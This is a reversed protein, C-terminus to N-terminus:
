EPTEPTEVPVTSALLEQYATLFAAVKPEVQLTASVELQKVPELIAYEKPFGAAEMEAITERVGALRVGLDQVLGVFFGMSRLRGELAEEQTEYPTTDMKYNRQNPTKPFVMTDGDKCTRIKNRVKKRWRKWQGLKKADPEELGYKNIRYDSQSLLKKGKAKIDEASGKTKAIPKTQQRAKESRCLDCDEPGLAFVPRERHCNKCEVM